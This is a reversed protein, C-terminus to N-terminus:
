PAQISGESYEEMAQAKGPVAGFLAPVDELPVGKTERICLTVFVMNLINLGGFVFLTGSGSWALLSPTVFNIVANAVYQFFVALSMAKDKEAMTFLESPYIWPVLGWALQFGVAYVCLMVMTVWGQWSFALGFGALILPPGMIFTAVLLLSRRGGWKSDILALGAVCGLVFVGNWIVNFEYPNEIGVDKFLTSAYSLFANVGTLQQAVQIWIAILVRKRLSPERFLAAYSVQELQGEAEIQARIELAEESSDGARVQALARAGAEHGAKGMVYRPSEPTLWVAVGVFAGALGPLLIGLKWEQYVLTIITALFGGLVVNLQFLSGTAGRISPTAVEANYMPLGFCCVGIGFGTFFRGVMFTAVSGFSLYSALLCGLFCVGAGASICLRRGLRHSLFPGLTLAGIAASFTILTAGWTVFNRQWALNHEAEAESCTVEDGYRGVCWESRFSEFTQVNGFNSQDIGFMIAGFMVTSIAMYM